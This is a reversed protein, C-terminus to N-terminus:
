AIGLQKKINNFAGGASIVADTSLKKISPEVLKAFKAKTADESQWQTINSLAELLKKGDAQNALVEGFKALIAEDGAKVKEEFQDDNTDLKLTPSNFNIRDASLIVEVKAPSVPPTPVKTTPSPPVQPTVPPTPVKPTPVGLIATADAFVKDARPAINKLRAKQADLKAKTVKTLKGFEIEKIKVQTQVIKAQDSAKQANDKAAKLDKATAAQAKLLENEADRLREETKDIEKAYDDLKEDEDRPAPTPAAPTTPRPPITPAAAATPKPPLPPPTKLANILDQESIGAGSLVAKAKNKISGVLTNYGEALKKIDIQKAEYNKLLNLFENYNIAIITSSVIIQTLFIFKIYKKIM